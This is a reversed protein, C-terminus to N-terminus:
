RYLIFDRNDRRELTQTYQKELEERDWMHHLGLNRRINKPNVYKKMQLKREKFEETWPSFVYKFVWM